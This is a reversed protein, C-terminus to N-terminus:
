CVFIIVIRQGLFAESDLAVGRDLKQWGGGGGVTWTFFVSLCFPQRDSLIRVTVCCADKGTAAVSHCGLCISRSM